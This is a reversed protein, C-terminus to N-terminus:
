APHPLPPCRLSDGKTVGPNLNGPWFDVLPPEPIEYGGGVKAEAAAMATIAARHAIPENWWM